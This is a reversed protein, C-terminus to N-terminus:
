NKPEVWDFNDNPVLDKDLLNKVLLFRFKAYNPKEEFKLEYINEALSLLFPANKCIESPSLERKLKLIQDKDEVNFPFSTYGTSLYILM